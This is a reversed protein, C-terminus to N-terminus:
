LSENIELLEKATSKEGTTFLAYILNNMVRKIISENTAPLYKKNELKYPVEVLWRDFDDTEITKGNNFPDVFFEINEIVTGDEVDEISFYDNVYGLIFHGPSNIGVLPINLREAMILYLISLGIPNSIKNEIIKNIFSNNIGSYNRINGNFGFDYLITQNMAQIIDIPDSGDIKEKIAEEMKDLTDKIVSVDLNPHGYNAIKLLGSLLDTNDFAYWYKLDENIKNLKLNDLISVIREKQLTNQSTEFAEQLPKIGYEGLSVITDKINNYIQENPDELLSILAKISSDDLKNM